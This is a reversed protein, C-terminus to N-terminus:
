SPCLGKKRVLIHFNGDSCFFKEGNAGKRDGVREKDGDHDSTKERKQSDPRGATKLFHRASELIDEFDDQFEEQIQDLADGPVTLLCELEKGSM